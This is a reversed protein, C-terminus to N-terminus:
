STTPPTVAKPLRGNKNVNFVSRPFVNSEELWTCYKSIRILSIWHHAVLETIWYPIKENAKIELIVFNDPLMLWEPTADALDLDKQKYWVDYDFTIRLWIDTDKWFFAERKYTTIASPRLDYTEVMNLVENITDIDNEYWKPIIWEDILLKADKYKMPVRRKQTVRDIRQKIEVFVKSEDTLPEDTVYRRVRLKRRFKLGEIKEWYFRYDFSDYYLSSLLYAWWDWYQDPTVFNMFDKKLDRVQELTLIYKLEFRNFKRITDAM